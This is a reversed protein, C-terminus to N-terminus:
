GPGTARGDAAVVETDMDRHDVGSWTAPPDSAPFSEKGAEDILEDSRAPSSGGSQPLPSEEAM